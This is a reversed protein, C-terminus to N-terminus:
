MQVLGQDACHTQCGCKKEIQGKGKTDERLRPPYFGNTSKCETTIEM